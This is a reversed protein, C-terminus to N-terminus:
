LHEIDDPKKEPPNGALEREIIQRAAGIGGVGFAIALAVVIGGFVISFAALVISTAIQLQEMVMALIMVMMLIRAAEALLKAYHYGANAATILVARSVFSSVAYGVVLIMAASFVRPMYGFFQEVLNDIAAVNLASLGVMLTIIVLLWFIIAGVVVSPKLWLDGKRILMTFGMRDSWNDFKVATLFKVLVMRLLRSLLLGVALIILMALLSPAFAQFKAYVDQLPDLILNFFDKM